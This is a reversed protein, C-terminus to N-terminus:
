RGTWCHLCLQDAPLGIADIMDEITQYKLSTVDIDKRIWDVM